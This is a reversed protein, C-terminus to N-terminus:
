NVRRWEEVYNYLTDRFASEIEQKFFNLDYEIKFEFESESGNAEKMSLSMSSLTEILKDNSLQYTGYGHWESSDPAPDSTWMVYGDFYIKHQVGINDAYITDDDLIWYSNTLKWVGEIADADRVDSNTTGADSPQNCAISFSLLTITLLFLAAYNHKKM